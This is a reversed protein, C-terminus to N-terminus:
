TKVATFTTTIQTKTGHLSIPLHLRKPSVLRDGDDAKFFMMRNESKSEM